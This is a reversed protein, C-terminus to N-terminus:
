AKGSVPSVTEGRILRTPLILEQAPRGPDGIRDLLMEVARNAMAAKSSSVTSMRLPYSFRSQINDFGMVSCDEPVQKGLEKLACVTEWALLDSFALVATYPKETLLRPLLSRSKEAIVPM